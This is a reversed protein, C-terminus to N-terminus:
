ILEFYTYVLPAALLVADFRDLIGGHGPLISGSDKIGLQRKIMSEVLDGYTGVVVVIAAVVLWDLLTIGTYYGSLLYAIGFAVLVGGIFGEWSKKPSIREFLRNKGLTIGFLYAGSDYCWILIFFGLIIYPSYSQPNSLAIGGLLAFPLVVYLPGLLTTAINGLPNEHKRYLEVIFVIVSLPVIGLLYKSSIIGSFSLFTLSFIAIGLFSGLLKQPKLNGHETLSYFELIGAVSILLFLGAFTWQNILIAGVLLAVFFFGTIARTILNKM